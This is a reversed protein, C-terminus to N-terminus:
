GPKRSLPCPAPANREVSQHMQRRMSSAHPVERTRRRRDDYVRIDFFLFAGVRGRFAREGGSPPPLLFCLIWCGLSGPEVCGSQYPITDVSQWARPFARSARGDIGLGARHGTSHAGHLPCFAFFPVVRVCLYFLCAFLSSPNHLTWYQLHYRSSSDNKNDSAKGVQGGRKDRNRRKQRQFICM